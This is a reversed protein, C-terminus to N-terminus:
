RDRRCTRSTYRTLVGVGAFVVLLISSPEPVITLVQSIGYFRNSHTDHSHLGLRDLYLSDVVDYHGYTSDHAGLPDDSAVGTSDTGTWVRDIETRINLQGLEDIALPNLLNVSATNWLDMAASVLMTGDLLFVPTTDSTTGTNDRANVTETSAMAKWTTGLSLLEPVADAASQVFANYDAIDTSEADRKGSSVFALRYQDGLNLGAPVTIPAAQLSSILTFLSFVTSCFLLRLNM